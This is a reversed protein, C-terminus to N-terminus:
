NQWVAYGRDRLEKALDREMAEAEKRTAIPNLREYLRPRLFRGFRHVLRAATRAGDRHQVFREAPTLVTAGVYVCPNGPEYDPNAARFRRVKLVAPDLDIVYVNYTRVKKQRRKRPM